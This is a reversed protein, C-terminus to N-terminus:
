QLILIYYTIIVKGIRFTYGKRLNDKKRRRDEELVLQLLRQAQLTKRVNISEVLTISRALAARQGNILGEFLTVVRKEEEPSLATDTSNNSYNCSAKEQSPELKRLCSFSRRNFNRILSSSISLDKQFLTCLCVGATHLRTMLVMMSSRFLLSVFLFPSLYARLDMQVLQNNAYISALCWPLCLGASM